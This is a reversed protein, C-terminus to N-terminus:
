RQPLGEPGVTVSRAGSTPEGAAVARTVHENRRSAARAVGHDADLAM